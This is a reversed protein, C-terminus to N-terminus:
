TPKVGWYRCQWNEGDFYLHATSSTKLKIANEQMFADVDNLLFPLFRAIGNSTIVLISQKPHKNILSNAFDRLGTIAEDKSFHWAKPAVAENDWKALADKGLKRIVETEPMGDYIGYDIENLISAQEISINSKFTDLAIRATEHTRKLESCYAHSINPHHKRLYQGLIKSQEIGSTSLALDTRLGVRLITDGQNFTNGHRAIILNLTPKM